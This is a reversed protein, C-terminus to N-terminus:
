LRFTVPEFGTGADGKVSCSFLDPGESVLAPGKEHETGVGGARLLAALEGLLELRPKGGPASAQHVEVREILARAAELVEPGGGASLAARLAAVRDRYREAINPLLRPRIAGRELAQLEATLSAKRAELEDLRKQLGASHLGRMIATILGELDREVAELARRKVVADAGSTALRRNWEAAYEAVFAAVLEPQMLETELAALVQAELQARRVRARNGCPGGASAVRCALYDRGVNAFPKGCGGCVVKGTLLHVARRQDWFRHRLQETDEREVLARQQVLRAQVREWLDQDVVRLESVATVVAADKGNSRAVRRGSTPDKIWRRQNWVLEGVYLRNRLIGTDREAQGRIAGAIWHGGRPSPISERNLGAAIAKPGHGEAFEQFIRRVIAAQAQDIERLGREAEGNRDVPGRVVTYGYCLGGGSRGQRVRGELGRRTKAALDKLYLAGMTGKFGVTVEDVEREALTHIRCGAFRAQKLLSAQHEQDRSFRDLSEALIVDAKGTRVMELMAQYGPRILSVGSTAYDSLVEVVIWGEREAESRCIRVQDEISAERQQDSSYRAYVVCRNM